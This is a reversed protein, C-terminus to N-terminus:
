QDIGGTRYYGYDGPQIQERDDEEPPSPPAMNLLDFMEVPVVSRAVGKYVPNWDDAGAEDSCRGQAVSGEWLYLGPVPPHPMPIGIDEADTGIERCDFDVAASDTAVVHANGNLDVAILIRIRDM